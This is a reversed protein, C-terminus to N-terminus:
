HSQDASQVCFILLWFWFQLSCCFIRILLLSILISRLFVLFLFISIKYSWSGCKDISLSYIYPLSFISHRFSSSHLCLVYWFNFRFHPVFVLILLSFICCIFHYPNTFKHFLHVTSALRFQHQIFVSHPVLFFTSWSFSPESLLISSFKALKM